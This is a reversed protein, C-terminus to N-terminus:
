AIRGRWQRPIPRAVEVRGAAIFAELDEEAIRVDRGLRFFAIRRESILRRVFRPTTNLRRAAEDVTYLTATL